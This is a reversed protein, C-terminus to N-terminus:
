INITINQEIKADFDKLLKKVEQDTIADVLRASTHTIKESMYTALLIAVERSPKDTNLILSYTKVGQILTNLRALRLTPNESSGSKVQFRGVDGAVTGRQTGMSHRIHMWATTPTEHWNNGNDQQQVQAMKALISENSEQKFLFGSNLLQYFAPHHEVLHEEFAESIHGKNLPSRKYVKGNFKKRPNYTGTILNYYSQYHETFIKKALTNVGNKAIDNVAKTLNIQLEGSSSVRLWSIDLHDTSYRITQGDSRNYYFAYSINNYQEAEIKFDTILKRLQISISQIAKYAMFMSSVDTTETLNNYNKELDKIDKILADYTGSSKRISIIMENLANVLDEFPIYNEAM